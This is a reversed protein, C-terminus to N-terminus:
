QGSFQAFYSSQSNAKNIAQEMATFQKWYRTEVDKLRATLATIRDETSILSKGITYQSDTMTSRGAKKEINKTFTEMSDRLRQIIGRTDGEAATKSGTQTLTKVVRDPDEELAKRLKKDDIVLKGGDSITSTTTIGMEFMTDIVKEGLGKVQGYIATRMDGLGSRLISDGRLLGSKAKEDWLKQESESMDKRQEATLPTFARYKTEKLQDNIGAILENYKSVFEKVKDVMSDIDKDSSVSIASESGYLINGTGDVTANYTENLTVSYGSITVANSKSTMKLGNVMYESDTGDAITKGDNGISFGLKKLVGENADKETPIEEDTKESKIRIAAGDIGQGTSNATISMKGDATVLATLGAGNLKKMFSEISDSESYSITSTSMKGNSGIIELELKGNTIDLEGLLSASTLTGNSGGTAYKLETSAVKNGVDFGLKEIAEKTNGDAVSVGSAGFSFKGGKLSLKFNSGLKNMLDQVTTITDPDSNDPGVTLTKITDGVKFTLTGTIGLSSLDETNAIDVKKSGGVDFTDSFTVGLNKLQDKTDDDDVVVNSNEFTLKGGSVKLVGSGLTTQLDSLTTDANLVLTKEEGNVKIKLEGSTAVGFDSLKDDSSLANKSLTAPTTVKSTAATALKGIGQINLTGSAGSGATASIAKNSVNVKNSVFNSSLRFNDLLYDSFTKMKTNIGRYADRQWEYTTKKQNLKNLPAREASMLKEVLADIDMGSALGGIRNVM